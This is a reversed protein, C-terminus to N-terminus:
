GSSVRCPAVGESRKILRCASPAPNRSPFPTWRALPHIASHCSHARHIGVGSVCKYPELGRFDTQTDGTNFHPTKTAVALVFICFFILLFSFSISLGHAGHPISPHPILSSPFGFILGPLRFVCYASSLPKCHIALLRLRPRPIRPCLLSPCSVLEVIYSNQHVGYHCALAAVAEAVGHKAGRSPSTVAHRVAPRSIDSCAARWFGFAGSQGTCTPYSTSACSLLCLALSETSAM